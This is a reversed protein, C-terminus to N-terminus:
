FPSSADAESSGETDNAGRWLATDESQAGWHSTRHERRRKNRAETDPSAPGWAIGGTLDGGSSRTRKKVAQSGGSPVGLTGAQSEALLDEDYYPLADAGVAGDRVAQQLRIVRTDTGPEFDCDESDSEDFDALDEFRCADGDSDDDSGDGSCDSLWDAMGNTLRPDRTLYSLTGDVQEQTGPPLPEGEKWEGKFPVSVLVKSQGDEATTWDASDTEVYSAPAGLDCDGRMEKEVEEFTLLPQRVTSGISGGAAVSVSLNSLAQKVLLQRSCIVASGMSKGSSAADARMAMEHSWLDAGYQFMLVERLTLYAILNPKAALEKDTKAWCGGCLSRKFARRGYEHRREAGSNSMMGLCMDHKGLERMFDGAHAMLTHLYFAKCQAKHFMAQFLFIFDRCEKGFNEFGKQERVREVDRETMLEVVKAWQEWLDLSRAVFRSGKVQDLREPADGGPWIHKLIVAINRDGDGDKRKLLHLSEHGLFSLKEYNKSDFNKLKEFRKSKFGTMCLAENLRKLHAVGGAMAFQCIQQFLAETVRMLCHLACFPCRASTMQPWHEGLFSSPRSFGPTLMTRVITNAPIACGNCLCESGHARWKDLKRLREVDPGLARGNSDRTSATLCDATSSAPPPPATSLRARKAPLMTSQNSEPPKRATRAAEKAPGPVVPQPQVILLSPETMFRMGEENFNWNPGRNECTNISWLTEAHLDLQNAFKCFNVPEKVLLLEFPIHRRDKHTNCHACYHKGACGHGLLSCQALMDAPVWFRIGVNHFSGDAKKAIMLKQTTEQLETWAKYQKSDQVTLFSDAAKSFVIGNEELERAEKLMEVLNRQVNVTSDKGSWIAITRHKLAKQCSDFGEKGKLMFIMMVETQSGHKTVRRADFTIKVDFLDQWGHGGPQVGVTRVEQGSDTMVGLESMAITQMLRSAEMEVARKLSIRYGDPTAFIELDEEALRMIGKKAASMQEPSPLCHGFGSKSLISHMGQYAKISGARKSHEITAKLVTMPDKRAAAAEEKIERLVKKRIKRESTITCEQVRPDRSLCRLFELPLDSLMANVGAMRFDDPSATTLCCEHHSRVAASLYLLRAQALVLRRYRIGSNSIQGSSSAVQKYPGRSPVQVATTVTAGDAPAADCRSRKVWDFDKGKVWGVVRAAELRDTECREYVSRLRRELDLGLANMQRSRAECHLPNTGGPDRSAPGPAEEAEDIGDNGPIKWVGDEFDSTGLIVWPPYWPRPPTYVLLELGSSFHPGSVGDDQVPKESTKERRGLSTGAGDTPDSEEWSDSASHRPIWTHNKWDYTEVLVGNMVVPESAEVAMSDSRSLCRSLVSCGGVFPGSSRCGSCSCSKGSTAQTSCVPDQDRDPDKREVGGGTPNSQEESVVASDSEGDGEFLRTPEAINRLRAGREEFRKSAEDLRRFSHIGRGQFLSNQFRITHPAHPSKQRNLPRQNTGFSSASGQSSDITALCSWADVPQRSTDSAKPPRSSARPLTSSSLLAETDQRLEAGESAASGSSVRPTATSAADQQVAVAVSMLSTEAALVHASLTGILPLAEKVFLKAFDNAIRHIKSADRVGHGVSCLEDVLGLASQQMTQLQAPTPTASWM